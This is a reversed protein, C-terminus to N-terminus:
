ASEGNTTLVAAATGEWSVLYQREAATFMQNTTRNFSHAVDPAVVDDSQRVSVAATAYLWAESEGAPTGDPGSGDYGAGFAVANGLATEWRSGVQRLFLTLSAALRRPVHIVGRGAYTNGLWEELAGIATLLRVAGVALVEAGALSQGSFTAGAADKGTWVAAELARAAGNELKRRALAEADAPNRGVASCDYLGYVTITDSRGWGVGADPITVGPQSNQTDNTVDITAPVAEVPDTPPIPPDAEPDGPDGEDAEIGVLNTGDAIVTPVNRMAPDFSITWPGGDDGTVSAADFGPLTRVAAEVDGSTADFAIPDTTDDSEYGGTLTFTGDTAGVITITQAEAALQVQLPPRCWGDATFARASGTAEFEVGVPWHPGGDAPFQAVSLLGYGAPTLVPPDVIVSPKPM